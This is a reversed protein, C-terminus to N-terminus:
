HSSNAEAEQSIGPVNSSDLETHVAAVRIAASLRDLSAGEAVDALSTLLEIIYAAAESRSDFHDAIKDSRSVPPAKWKASSGM